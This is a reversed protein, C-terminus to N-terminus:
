NLSLEVRIPPIPGIAPVVVSEDNVGNAADITLNRAPPQSRQVTRTFTSM